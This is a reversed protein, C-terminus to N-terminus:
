SKVVKLKGKVAKRSKSVNRRTPLKKKAPKRFKVTWVTLGAGIVFLSAWILVLSLKGAFKQLTLVWLSGLGVGIALLWLTYLTTKMVRM